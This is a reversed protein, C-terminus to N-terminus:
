AENCIQAPINRTMSVISVGEDQGEEFGSVLSELFVENVNDEDYCEGSEFFLELGNDWEDEEWCGRVLITSTGEAIVFCCESELSVIFCYFVKCSYM